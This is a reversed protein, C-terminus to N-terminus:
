FGLGLVQRYISPGRGQVHFNKMGGRAAVLGKRKSGM